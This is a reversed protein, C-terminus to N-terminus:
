RKIASASSFMDALWRYASFNVEVKGLPEGTWHMKVHRIFNSTDLGTDKIKVGYVNSKAIRKNPAQTFNNDGFPLVFMEAAATTSAM